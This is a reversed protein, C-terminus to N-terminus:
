ETLRDFGEIATVCCQFAGACESIETSEKSAAISTGFSSFQKPLGEVRGV